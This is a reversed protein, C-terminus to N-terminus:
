CRALDSIKNSLVHVVFDGLLLGLKDSLDGAVLRRESSQFGESCGLEWFLQPYLVGDAWLM